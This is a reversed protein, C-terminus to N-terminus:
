CYEYILHFRNDENTAIESTFRDVEKRWGRLEMDLLSHCWVMAWVVWETMEPQRHSSTALSAPTREPWLNHCSQYCWLQWSLGYWAVEPCWRCKHRGLVAEERVCWACICAWSWPLTASLSDGEKRRNQVRWRCCLSLDSINFCEGGPLKMSLSGCWCNNSVGELLECNEKWLSCRVSLIFIQLLSHATQAFDCYAKRSIPPSYGQFADDIMCSRLWFLFHFSFSYM